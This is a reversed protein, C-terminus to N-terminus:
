KMTLYVLRSFPTIVISEKEGNVAVMNERISRNSRNDDKEGDQKDKDKEGKELKRKELELGVFRLEATFETTIPEANKLFRTRYTRTLGDIAQAILAVSPTGKHHYVLAPLMTFKPPKISELLKHYSILTDRFLSYMKELGHSNHSNHSCKPSYPSYTKVTYTLKGLTSQVKLDDWKLMPNRNTDSWSAVEKALEFTALDKLAPGFL